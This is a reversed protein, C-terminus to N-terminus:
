DRAEIILLLEVQHFRICNKDRTSYNQISILRGERRELFTVTFNIFEDICHRMINTCVSCM